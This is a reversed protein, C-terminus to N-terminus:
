TKSRKDNLPINYEALLARIWKENDILEMESEGFILIDNLYVSCKVYLENCLIINMGRQFIFLANEYGQPMRTYEYVKGEGDTFATKKRDKEFLSVQSSGDSPELVSFFKKFSLYLSLEDIKPVKYQDLECKWEIREFGLFFTNLGNEERGICPNSGSRYVQNYLVSKM